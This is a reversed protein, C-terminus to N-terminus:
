WECDSEAAFARADLGLYGRRGYRERNDKIVWAHHDPSQEIGVRHTTTM